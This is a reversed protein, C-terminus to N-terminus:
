FWLMQTEAHHTSAQVSQVPPFASCTNIQSHQDKKICLYPMELWSIILVAITISEVQFIITVNVRKSCTGLMDGSATDQVMESIYGKVPGIDSYKMIGRANLEQSLPKGLFIETFNQVSNLSHRLFMRLVDVPHTPHVATVSSLSVPPNASAFVLDYCLWTRTIIIFVASSIQWCIVSYLEIGTYMVRHSALHIDVSQLRGWWGTFFQKLWEGFHFQWLPCLVQNYAPKLTSVWIKRWYSTEGLL